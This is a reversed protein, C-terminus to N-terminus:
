EDNNKLKDLQSRIVEDPKKSLATREYLMGNVQKQLARVSWRQVRCMEAYFDRKLDDDISCIIVFHSWALQRSLTSVIERNPFQKAFKIMRFLNPRSYGRGYALTLERALSTVIAEGYEAREAKLIEEDIRKGILWCLIAQTSSYERAVHKRADDILSAINHFLAAPLETILKSTSQKM